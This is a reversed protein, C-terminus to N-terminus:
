EEDQASLRYWNVGTTRETFRIIGYEENFYVKDITSGPFEFSDYMLVKEYTKGDVMFEDFLTLDQRMEIFSFDRAFDFEFRLNLFNFFFLRSFAVDETELLIFSHEEPEFTNKAKVEAYAYCPCISNRGRCTTTYSESRELETIILEFIEEDQNMFVITDGEAYPVMELDEESFGPCNVEESCSGLFVSILFLIPLFIKKM